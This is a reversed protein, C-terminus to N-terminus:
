TVDLTVASRNGASDVTMVIRNKTDGIDRFTVSTTGGGSAKGAFSSLFLMLAQRMTVSGEVVEELIGDIASASLAFGTKDSVTVAPTAASLSAKQLAGFDLNDQAKVQADVYGGTFNIADTKVKIGDILLDLRGGNALDTQIENTDALIAAIETDIYGAITGLTGPLTTGTDELIAASDSKVTAIDASISAGTPAGIRAFIDGTVYDVLRRGISGVTTLASSLADWIAQVGASSLAYGAKSAAAVVVGDTGTDTLIAATDTKVATLDTDHIDALQAKIASNGYTGSNVVAYADGTQQPRVQFVHADIAAVSDVTAKVVVVYTKNAQFGAAATLQRRAYYLGVVSDFPSAPTMDVNEDLGTASGEEYISYSVASPAYAAGTSFRHTVAPVAVYEDIAYTGLFM